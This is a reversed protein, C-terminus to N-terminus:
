IEKRTKFDNEWKNTDPEYATIIYLLDDDASCVIHLYRKNVTIGLILCSAFPKDDTYTEIIEGSSICEMVEHILIKRQYMRQLAHRKWVINQNVAFQKIDDMTYNLRPKEM